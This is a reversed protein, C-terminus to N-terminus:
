LFISGFLVLRFTSKFWTKISIIMSLMINLILPKKFKFKRSIKGFILFLIFPLQTRFEIHLTFIITTM